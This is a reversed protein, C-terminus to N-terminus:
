EYRISAKEQIKWTNGEKVAIGEKETVISQTNQSLDDGNITCAPRIYATTSTRVTMFVEKKNLLSFTGRNGDKTELVYISEGAKYEREGAQFFGDSTPASLYYTQIVPEQPKPREYIERNERQISTTPASYRETLRETPREEIKRVRSSLAEITQNLNTLYQDLENQRKKDAKTQEKNKREILIFAVIAIILFLLSIVNLDFTLWEPPSQTDTAITKNEQRNSVTWKDDPIEHLHSIISEKLTALKESENERKAVFDKLAEEKFIDESLFQIAETKTSFDTYKDSLQLIMKACLTVNPVYTDPIKAQVEDVRSPTLEKLEDVVSKANDTGSLSVINVEKAVIALGQEWTDPNVQAHLLQGAIVLCFVLKLKM